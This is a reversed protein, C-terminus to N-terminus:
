GRAVPDAKGGSVRWITEAAENEGGLIQQTIEKCSRTKHFVKEGRRRSVTEEKKRFSNKEKAKSHRAGKVPSPSEIVLRVCCAGVFDPREREGDDRCKKPNTATTNKKKKLVSIM